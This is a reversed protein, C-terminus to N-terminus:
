LWRLTNVTESNLVITHYSDTKEGAFDGDYVSEFAREGISIVKYVNTKDSRLKFRDGINVDKISTKM